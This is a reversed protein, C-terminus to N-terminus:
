VSYPNPLATWLVVAEETESPNRWTHPDRPSYTLTDGEELEHVEDRVRLELSGRLVYVLEVDAPITYPEDGASGGPPIHSETVHFRREDGSSLLLHEANGMALSRRAQEERRILRGGPVEDVLDGVRLGLAACIRYLSSLSASTLDRELQSIFGTTLGTREAVEAMTLGRELRRARLRAGIRVEGADTASM